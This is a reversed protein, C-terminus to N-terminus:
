ANSKDYEVSKAKLQCAYYALASTLFIYVAGGMALSDMSTGLDIYWGLIIPSLATCFVMVSAGLSKISGLHKNGYMESWFPATVTSHFGVTIGTLALFVGGWALSSSLSLIVLGIGMPLAVLPVMRIAGFRDVLLGTVIKTAVSVLAYMVFLSAWATLSWNKSEVLHVQHFIFGTFMLPQSTLGPAFLYFLKDRVVESRTWQRRRYVRESPNDTALLEDLYKKHRQEHNRLLYLIAPVMFVILVIGAIQWSIRWGFWLLLAVLISPMVAESIAYGMGALATSKGKHEDLYRVMATSSVIYMLGQGLQRILFLSIILSVVGVSISMLGCGIGLGVVIAISLKKLDFKDVLSGSWVMVIASGLTALSYVGAFEGDSLALEARIEGSFLSILFTQGPSSWFTMLFGFLLLQWESRILKLV